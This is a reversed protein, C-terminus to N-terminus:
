AVNVRQGPPKDLGFGDHLVRVALETYKSEVVVSIRIESTSIMVININERALLEFMRLAVGAHSRMGVGVISVKALGDDLSLRKGDDCLEACHTKLFEVARRCDAKPVTFTLDTRLRGIHSTFEQDRDDFRIRNLEYAGGLAVHRSLSWVGGAEHGLGM